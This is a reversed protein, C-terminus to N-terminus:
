LFAAGLLSPNNGAIASPHHPPPVILHEATETEEKSSKLGITDDTAFTFKPNIASLIRGLNINLKKVWSSSSCDKLLWLLLTNTKSMHLTDVMGLSGKYDILTIYNDEFCLGIEPIFPPSKIICFAENSGSHDLDMSLIIERGKSCPLNRGSPWYARNNLIIGKSAVSRPFAADWIIKWGSCTQGVTFSLKAVRIHQKYVLETAVLVYEAKSADYGYTYSIRLLDICTPSYYGPLIHLEGTRPSLLYATQSDYYLLMDCTLRNWYHCGVRDNILRNSYSSVEESQLTRSTVLSDRESARKIWGDMYMTFSFAPKGTCTQRPRWLDVLVLKSNTLLWRRRLCAFTPVSIIQYWTKCVSCCKSLTKSDLRCLIECVLDGSLDVLEAKMENM